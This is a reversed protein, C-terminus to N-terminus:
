WGASERLCQGRGCHGCAHPNPSVPVWNAFNQYEQAQTCVRGTKAANLACDERALARDFSQHDKISVRQYNSASDQKWDAPPQFAPDKKLYYTAPAIETISDDRKCWGQAYWNSTISWYRGKSNTGLTPEVCVPIKMNKLVGKGGDVQGITSHTGTIDLTHWDRISKHPHGIHYIVAKPNANEMSTGDKNVWPKYQVDPNYYLTNVQPSRRRAALVNNDNTALLGQAYYM